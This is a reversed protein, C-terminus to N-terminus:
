SKYNSGSRPYYSILKLSRYRLRMVGAQCNIPTRTTISMLDLSAMMLAAFRTFSYIQGNNNLGLSHPVHPSRLLPGGM